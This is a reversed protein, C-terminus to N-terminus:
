SKRNQVNEALNIIELYRLIHYKPIYFKRGIKIHDIKNENLLKYASKRSIGGLMRCLTKVDVVISSFYRFVVM